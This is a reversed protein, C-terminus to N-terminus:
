VAMEGKIAPHHQYNILEFDEEALDDVGTLNRKIVLQALPLPNRKLVEQCQEVHNSYIHANGIMYTFIGPILGVINSIISLFLAYQVINHNAGLFIDASRQYMSLDLYKGRVFFQIFSGHCPPLNIEDIDHARWLSFCIRRSHPNQIIESIVSNVQDIIRVRPKPLIHTFSHWGNHQQRKGSLCEIISPACVRHNNVMDYVSMFAYTKGDKEATFPANQTTNYSQEEQSAWMCTEKSYRNSARLVDKDLSYSAPFTKKLNWNPIVKIDRQFNQFILWDPSVHVGKAGYAKYGVSRKNYCRRLMDRWSSLALELNSDLEDYDGYAGVGFVSEHWYDKVLPKQVYGYRVIRESRSELFKVRFKSRGSDSVLEELVKFKLGVGNTLTKGLFKSNGPIVSFDDSFAPSTFECNYEFVEPSTLIFQEIKRFQYGYTKGLYGDTDAFPLWWKQASESLNYANTNGSLMWLFENLATKFYTKKTTVIPFGESLNFCMKHGFSSLIGTKTRDPCEIGSELIDQILDKYQQM